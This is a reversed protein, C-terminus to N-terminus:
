VIEDTHWWVDEFPTPDGAFMANLAIYFRENAELVAAREAESPDADIRQDALSVAAAIAGPGREGQLAAQHEGRHHAQREHDRHRERVLRKRQESLIGLNGLEGM